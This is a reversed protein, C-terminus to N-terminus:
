CSLGKSESRGNNKNKFNGCKKFETRFYKKFFHSFFVYNKTKARGISSNIKGYNKNKDMLVYIEVSLNSAIKRFVCKAMSQM